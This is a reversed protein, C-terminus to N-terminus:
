KQRMLYLGIERQHSFISTWLGAVDAKAGYRADRVIVFLSFPSGSPGGSPAAHPAYFEPWVKREDGRQAL